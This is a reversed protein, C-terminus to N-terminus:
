FFPSSSSFLDLSFGVVFYGFGVVFYRLTLTSVMRHAISEGKSQGAIVVSMAVVSFCVCCYCVSVPIVVSM